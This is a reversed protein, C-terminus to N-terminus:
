SSLGTDLVDGPKARSLAELLAPAQALVDPVRTTRVRLILIAYPLGRLNQQHPLNRDVTVFADFEGSEAIFKLLQGNKVGLWGLQRVTRVSHGALHAALEVPLCEDLLVRM